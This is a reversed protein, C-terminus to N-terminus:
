MGPDGCAHAADAIWRTIERARYRQAPESSGGVRRTTRWKRDEIVVMMFEESVGFSNNSNQFFVSGCAESNVSGDYRAEILAWAKREEAIKCDIFDMIDPHDVNLFVMKPAGRVCGGSKIVGAFADFGEHVLGARLGHGLGRPARRQEQAAVPEDRHRVGRAQVADGREQRSRPEVGHQRRREPHLVGVGQPEADYGCNFWVPSDFAAMQNIPLHSLEDTFAEERDETSSFYNTPGGVVTSPTLSGPWSSGYAPRADRRERSGGPTSPPWSTPRGSRSPRRLSRRRGSTAAEVPPLQAPAMANLHRRPERGPRRQVHPLVPQVSGSRWVVEKIAGVGSENISLVDVKWRQGEAFRCMGFLDGALLGGRRRRHRRPDRARREEDDNPDKPVTLSRIEAPVDDRRAELESLEQGALEKLEAEAGDALERTETIESSVTKYDRFRGVIPQIESLAKSQTRYHNADSKVAGDSLFGMM